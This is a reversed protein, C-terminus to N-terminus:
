KQLGSPEIEWFIQLVSKLAKFIKGHKKELFKLLNGSIEPFIFGEELALLVEAVTLLRLDGGVGGKHYTFTSDFSIGM